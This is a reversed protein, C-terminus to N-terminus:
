LFPLHFDEIVRKAISQMMGLQTKVPTFPINPVNKKCVMAIDVLLALTDLRETVHSVKIDFRPETLETFGILYHQPQGM